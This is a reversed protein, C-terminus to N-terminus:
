IAPFSFSSSTQQLSSGSKGKIKSPDNVSVTFQPNPMDIPTTLVLKYTNDSM